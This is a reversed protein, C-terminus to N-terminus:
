DVIIVGNFKLPNLEDHYTFTGSKEFVITIRENQMLRADTNLFAYRNDLPHPDSRIQHIESSENSWTVRSGKKIKVTQPFFNTKTITVITETNKSDIKVMKPKEFGPLEKPPPAKKLFKFPLLMLVIVIMLLFAYIIKKKTINKSLNEM